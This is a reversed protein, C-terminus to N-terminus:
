SVADLIMTKLLHFSTTGCLSFCIGGVSSEFSLSSRAEPVVTTHKFHWCVECADVLIM